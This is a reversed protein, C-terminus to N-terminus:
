SLDAIVNTVKFGAGSVEIAALRYDEDYHHAAVWCQAAFTMQRLKAPTVYEIGRGQDARSRYKVECFYLKGDRWAVIDIECQRTRWNQALIECGKRQLFAAAVAEAKRGIEFTTM